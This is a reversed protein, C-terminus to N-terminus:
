TIDAIVITLDDADEDRRRWRHVAEIVADASGGDRVITKLREDGFPEGRGNRAEVVGDTWAAIRDGPALTTRQSQYKVMAFRGLLTGSSGLESCGGNRFLLPSPHGANAVAVSRSAADFHLYTATVFARRVERRLTDNLAALIAAPDDALRVQSSVAIKVMSAILAAPVGHGAVDAVLLGVRDDGDGVFDYLDGAVSTAPDYRIDFRVGSLAPMTTPLISRQIERAASLEGEISLREREGRVFANLSAYGLSAVFVLFGTSEDVPLRPWLGLSALNNNLATLLFVFGGAILPWVDRGGGRASRAFNLLLNVAGMVVLISNVSGLSEPQHLVVDAIIGIPAFAVFLVVQWRLSGRWGDGLLARSLQWGPVPIIYTIFSKIYRTSPFAMGLLFIVGADMMLRVGYLLTFAGFWFVAATNGRARLRSVAVSAAGIMILLAATAIRGIDSRLPETTIDIIAAPVADSRVLLPTGGIFPGTGGDPFRIMLLQGAAARPLAVDHTRLRGQARPEDFRYIQRGDLLIELRATYTRFILHADAPLERPLRATAAVDPGQQATLSIARPDRSRACAVAILLLALTWQRM